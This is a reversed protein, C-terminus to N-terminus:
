IWSNIMVFVKLRITPIRSIVGSDETKDKLRNPMVMQLTFFLYGSASWGASDPRQGRQIGGGAPQHHLLGEGGQGAANGANLVRQCRGPIWRSVLLGSNSGGSGSNLATIQRVSSGFWGSWFDNSWRRSLALTMSVTSSARQRDEVPWADAIVGGHRQLLEPASKSGVQIGQGFRQSRMFLLRFIGPCDGFNWASILTGHRCCRSILALTAATRVVPLDHSGSRQRGSTLAWTVARDLGAALPM